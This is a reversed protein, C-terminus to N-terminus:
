AKLGPANNELNAVRQMLSDITEALEPNGPCGYKRALANGKAIREWMFEEKKKEQYLWLECCHDEFGETAWIDWCPDACWERKLEEVEEKTKM